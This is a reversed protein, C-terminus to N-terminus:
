EESRYRFKINQLPSENNDPWLRYQDITTPSFTPAWKLKGQRTKKNKVLEDRRKLVDEGGNVEERTVGGDVKEGGGGVTTQLRGELSRRMWEGGGDVTAVM